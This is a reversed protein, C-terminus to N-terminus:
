VLLNVCRGRLEGWRFEQRDGVSMTEMESELSWNSEWLRRMEQKSRGVMVIWRPELSSTPTASACLPSRLSNPRLTRSFGNAPSYRSPPFCLSPFHPKIFTYFVLLATFSVKLMVMANQKKPDTKRKGGEHPCLNDNTDSQGSSEKLIGMRVSRKHHNQKRAPDRLM